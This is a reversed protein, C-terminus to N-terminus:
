WGPLPSLLSIASQWRVEYVAASNIFIQGPAM